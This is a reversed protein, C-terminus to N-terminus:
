CGSAGGLPECHDTTKRTDDILKDLHVCLAYKCYVGRLLISEYSMTSHKYVSHQLIFANLFVKGKNQKLIEIARPVDTTLAYKFETFLTKIFNPVVEKKVAAATSISTTAPAKSLILKVLEKNFGHEVLQTVTLNYFHELTTFRYKVCLEIFSKTPLVCMNTFFSIIDASLSTRTPLSSSDTAETVAPTACAVPATSCFPTFLCHTKPNRIPPTPSYNANSVASTSSTRHSSDLAPRDTSDAPASTSIARHSSDLAPRDASRVSKFSCRTRPDRIPLTPSYNANSVASTSSARHSSDLAPRDTSDTSDAPASTTVSASPALITVTEWSSLPGYSCIWCLYTGDCYKCPGDLSM